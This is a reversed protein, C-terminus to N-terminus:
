PVWEALKEALAQQDEGDRCIVLVAYRDHKPASFQAARWHEAGFTEDTLYARVRVIRDTLHPPKM